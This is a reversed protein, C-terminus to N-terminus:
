PEGLAQRLASDIRAGERPAVRGSRVLERARELYADVDRRPDVVAAVGAERDAIFYSAQALCPLYMQELIM